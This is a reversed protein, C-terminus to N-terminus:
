LWAPYEQMPQHASLMDNYSSVIAVGPARAARLAEKDVGDMAAFGHALNSCALGRRVPGEEYAAATRGLYATRTAASRAAIRETVDAVVRHLKTTPTPSM